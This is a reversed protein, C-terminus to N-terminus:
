ENCENFTISTQSHEPCVPRCCTSCCKAVKRDKTAPCLFCRKKKQLTIGTQLSTSSHGLGCRMMAGKTAGRLQLIKQRTMMHPMILSEALDTIFRRRRSCHSSLYDPYVQRFVTYANQAAIDLVNYFLIFPWRRTQRKCTYTRVMQDVLDVGIKTKNYFKIIEPRNKPDEEVITIGYHMTSLLIVAKNKKPVYSVMTLQDSFGSVSTKTQQSKAAKMCVPIERKCKRMTGVVTLQHQLLTRAVAVSTFFNDISVNRASGQLPTTLNVVVNHGHNKEPASGPQRGVYIKANFAYPLSADCLWFIKISYKAPKSPMYITFPCRGRFPVLQEDVTTYAGLSFQTKCNQIFLGRIYNFAVLKDQKLREVRTRKDDFRLHRRINEFRNVGFAAKYTPNQKADLFLQRTDM